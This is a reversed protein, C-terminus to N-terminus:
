DQHYFHKTQIIPSLHNENEHVFENHIKVCSNYM